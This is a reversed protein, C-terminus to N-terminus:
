NPCLTPIKILYSILIIGANLYVLSILIQNSKKISIIKFILICFFLLGLTYIAPYMFFASKFEGQFLLVIARQMGCGPCELGTLSKNLCPLM